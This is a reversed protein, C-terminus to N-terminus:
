RHQGRNGRARDKKDIRRRFLAVTQLLPNGDDRMAIQAELDCAKLADGTGIKEDRGIVPKKGDVDGVGGLPLDEAFNKPPNRAIGCRCVSDEIEPKRDTNGLLTASFM